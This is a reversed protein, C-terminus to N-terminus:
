AADRRYNGKIRERLEYPILHRRARRFMREVSRLQRKVIGPEGIILPYRKVFLPHAHGFIGCRAQVSVENGAAVVSDLVEGFREVYLDMSYRQATQHAARGSSALLKQDSALRGLVQAMQAMDGVPVVFGSTGSDIVGEIGSSAATVAPVVGCAMAELMSVSTGEFDSTQVFVDHELWIRPMESHHIRRQFRVSAAPFRDRMEKRLAAFADGDGIIDFVFPVRAKVLCDVLPIFDWVRKQRQTVRGAYVIRLPVCQYDRHLAPPVCVGYPLTTIDQTRFPVRASLRQGCEVSVAIFKTICPEYWSLPRYYEDDNDSHCMGICFIQPNLGVQFLEWVFNPLVIAPALRGVLKAALKVTRAYIDFGPPKERGVYL